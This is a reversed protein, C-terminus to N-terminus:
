SFNENRLLIPCWCFFSIFACASFSIPPASIYSTNTFKGETQPGKINHAGICLQLELGSVSEEAFNESQGERDAWRRTKSILNEQFM